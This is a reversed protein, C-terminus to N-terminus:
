PCGSVNYIKSIHQTLPVRMKDGEQFKGGFGVIRAEVTCGIQLQDHLVERQEDPSLPQGTPPLMYVGLNTYVAGCFGGSAFRPISSRRKSGGSLSWRERCTRAADIREVKLTMVHSEFFQEHFMLSTGLVPFALVLVCIFITRKKGTPKM